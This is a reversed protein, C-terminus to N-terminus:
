QLYNGFENWCNGLVMGLKRGFGDQKRAFGDRSKAWVVGVCFAVSRGIFVKLGKLKPLRFRLLFYTVWGKYVRVCPWIRHLELNEWFRGGKREFGSRKADSVNLFNLTHELVPDPPM